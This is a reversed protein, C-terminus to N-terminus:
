GEKDYIDQIEERMINEQNELDFSSVESGLFYNALAAGENKARLSNRTYCKQNKIDPKGADGIIYVEGYNLFFDKKELNTKLDELFNLNPYLISDIFVLQSSFVKIPLNEEDLSNDIADKIIKVAKVSKEGIVEKLNYGLYLVIGKKELLNKIEQQDQGLFELNAAVIRVEKQLSRLFLSFKIGELSNVFLVTENHIKLLVKLLFPNVEALYFFGEKNTGKIEIKRNSIGSAIVLNEFGLKQSNDLYIKKRKQNIKEVKACIFKIGLKKALQDNKKVRKLDTLDKSIRNKPFYFDNKDILTIDIKQGSRVITELFFSGAIGSGIVTLKDIENNM